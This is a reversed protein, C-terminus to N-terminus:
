VVFADGEFGDFDGVRVDLGFAFFEESGVEFGFTEFGCDGDDLSKWSSEM